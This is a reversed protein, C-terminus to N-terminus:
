APVCSIPSSARMWESQSVASCPPSRPQNAAPYMCCSNSSATMSSSTPWSLPMTSVAEPRWRMRRVPQYGHRLPSAASTGSARVVYSRVEASSSGLTGHVTGRKPEAALAAGREVERPAGRPLPASVPGPGSGAGSRCRGVRPSSSLHTTDRRTFLRQLHLYLTSAPRRTARKPRQPGLKARLEDGEKILREVEAETKQLNQRVDNLQEETADESSLVNNMEEQTVYGRQKGMAILAQIESFEKDKLM